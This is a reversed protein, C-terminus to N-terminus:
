LACPWRRRRRTQWGREIAGRRSHWAVRRLPEPLAIHQPDLGDLLRYLAVLWQHTELAIELLKLIAKQVRFLDLDPEERMDQRSDLLRAERTRREQEELGLM